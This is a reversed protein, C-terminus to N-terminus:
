NCETPITSQKCGGLCSSLYHACMVSCKGFFTVEKLNCCYLVILNWFMVNELYNYHRTCVYISYVVYVYTYDITDITCIVILIVHMALQIYSKIHMIIARPIRCWHAHDNICSSFKCLIITSRSIHMTLSCGLQLIM